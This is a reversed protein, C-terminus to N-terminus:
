IGCGFDWRISLYQLWYRVWKLPGSLCGVWNVWIAVLIEGMTTPWKFVGCLEGIDCGFNCGNSHGV